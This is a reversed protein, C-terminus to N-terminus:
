RDGIVVVRGVLAQELVALSSILPGPTVGPAWQASKMLAVSAQPAALTVPCTQILPTCVMWIVPFGIVTRSGAPSALATRSFHARSPHVRYTSGLVYRGIRIVLQFAVNPPGAGRVDPESTISTSHSFGVAALMALAVIMMGGPKRWTADGAVWYRRGRCWEGVAVARGRRAPRRPSRPPPM